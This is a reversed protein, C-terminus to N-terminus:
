GGQFRRRALQRDLAAQEEERLEERIAKEVSKRELGIHHRVLYVLYTGTEVVRDVAEGYDHNTRTRTLKKLLTHLKRLNKRFDERESCLLHLAPALKPVHIELFSFLLREELKMRSSLKQDFYKLVSRVERLNKGFLFKGEYRLKTLVECLRDAKCLAETYTEELLPVVGNANVRTRTTKGM